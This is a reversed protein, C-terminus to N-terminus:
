NDTLFIRRCIKNDLAINPANELLLKCDSEIASMKEAISKVLGESDVKVTEVGFAASLCNKMKSALVQDSHLPENKMQNAINKVTGLDNNSQATECISLLTKLHAERMQANANSSLLVILIVYISRM